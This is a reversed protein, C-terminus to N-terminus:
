LILLQNKDKKLVTPDNEKSHNIILQSLVTIESTRNEERVCKHAQMKLLQIQYM